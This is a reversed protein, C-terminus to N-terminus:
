MDSTKAIIHSFFEDYAALCCDNVREKQLQEFHVMKILKSKFIIFYVLLNSQKHFYGSILYLGQYHKYISAFLGRKKVANFYM